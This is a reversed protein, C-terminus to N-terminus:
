VIIVSCLNFIIKSHGAFYIFVFGQLRILAIEETPQLENATMPPLIMFRINKTLVLDQM